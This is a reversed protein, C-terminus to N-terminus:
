KDNPLVFVLAESPVKATLKAYIQLLNVLQAQGQQHKGVTAVHASLSGGESYTSYPLATGEWTGSMFPSYWVFAFLGRCIKLISFYMRFYLLKIFHWFLYGLFVICCVATCYIIFSVELSRKFHAPERACHPASSIWGPPKPPLESSTWWLITGSMKNNFDAWYNLHWFSHFFLHSKLMNHHNEPSEKLTLWAFFAQYSSVPIPSQTGTKHHVNDWLNRHTLILSYHM